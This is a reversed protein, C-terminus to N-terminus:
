FVRAAKVAIGKAVTESIGERDLVIKQVALALERLLGKRQIM